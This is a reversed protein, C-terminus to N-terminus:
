EGTRRSRQALLAVGAVVLVAAAVALVVAPLAGFDRGGPSGGPQDAAGTPPPVEATVAEVLDLERFGGPGPDGATFALRHVVGDASLEPYAARILAVAGAVVAAATEARSDETYGGAPATTLVAVGPAALALGGAAAAAGTGGALEGQQDVAAVAVVAPNGAPYWVEVSDPGDGSDDGVGAVIVVDAARAADIAAAFVDQSARGGAYCIVQAGNAVAWEIGDVALEVAEQDSLEDSNVRVPLLTAGPAIGLVGRNGPESDTLRNGHGVIVGALATGGAAATWADDNAPDALDVGPLVNQHLDPHNGDVGSGVLAVTVGEGRTREHADALDLYDLHWQGLRIEDPEDPVPPMPPLEATLAAVIDVVGYGYEEDPGVPGTDAATEVLRYIVEDATLEPFAARVLAAAGAVIPAAFSTGSAIAYEGGPRTTVIGDGPATLQLEPGTVSFAAREGDEDVGGVAVVSELSAPFTVADADPRNGAAAVVVVGARRAAEIARQDVDSHDSSLSISIVDAGETVARQIGEAVLHTTPQQDDDADSTARIPLIRAGPAVGLVGDGAGPGHGHGALVGAVLTGHEEPTWANDNEPEVLDFGPLLNDRLDPHSADVGSDIIAVTVGEGRTIEHATALDLYPVHWQEDRVQDARAPSAPVPVLFAAVVGAAALRRARRRM